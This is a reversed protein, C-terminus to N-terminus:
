INGVKIGTSAKRPSSALSRDDDWDFTRTKKDNHSPLPLSLRSVLRPPGDDNGLNVVTYESKSLSSGTTSRDIVDALFEIQGYFGRALCMSPHLTGLLSPRRPASSALSSVAGKGKELSSSPIASTGSPSSFSSSASSTTWSSSSARQKRKPIPVASSSM